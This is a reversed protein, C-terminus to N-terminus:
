LRRQEARDYPTNWPRILQRLDVVITFLYIFLIYLAITAHLIQCYGTCTRVKKHYVLYQGTYVVTFEHVIWFLPM